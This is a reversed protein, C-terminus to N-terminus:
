NQPLAVTQDSLIETKKGLNTFWSVKALYSHYNSDNGMDDM